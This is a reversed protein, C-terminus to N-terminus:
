DMIQKLLYSIVSDTLKSFGKDTIKKLLEKLKNKSITEKKAEKEIDKVINKIEEKIEQNIDLEEIIQTINIEINYITGLNIHNGIILTAPNHTSKDSLKYDNEVINEGFSNIEYTDYAPYKFTGKNNGPVRVTRILKKEKLNKLHYIIERSDVHEEIEKQVVRDTLPRGGKNKYLIELIQKEIDKLLSIV